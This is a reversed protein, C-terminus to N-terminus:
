VALFSGYCPVYTGVNMTRLRPPGVMPLPNPTKVIGAIVAIFAYIGMPILTVLGLFIDLVPCLMRAIALMKALRALKKGIDTLPIGQTPVNVVPEITFTTRRTYSGSAWAATQAARYHLLGLYTRVGANLIPTGAPRWSEPADASDFDWWAAQDDTKPEAM